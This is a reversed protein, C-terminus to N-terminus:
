EAEAAAETETTGRADLHGKVADEAAVARGRLELVQSAHRAAEVDVRSTYWTAAGASALLVVIAAAWGLGHRRPVRANPPKDGTVCNRYGEFEDGHPLADRREGSM